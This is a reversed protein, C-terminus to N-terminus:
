SVAVYAGGGSHCQEPTPARITPNSGQLRNVCLNLEQLTTMFGLSDPIPGSLTNGQIWWGKLVDMFGVSDPISGSLRNGYMHFVELATMSRFDDPIPGHLSHSHVFLERMKSWSGVASPITGILVEPCEPPSAMHNHLLLSELGTMTGVAHPITGRLPLDTMMLYTMKSWSGAAAPVAGKLLPLDTMMLHTMKSWSGVSIPITGNLNQNNLTLVMLSSLKEVSNPIPGRLDGYSRQSGCLGGAILLWLKSIAINAM